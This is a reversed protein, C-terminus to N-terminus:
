RSASIIVPQLSDSNNWRPLVGRQQRETSNGRGPKSCCFGHRRWASSENAVSGLGVSIRTIVGSGFGGRKQDFNADCLRQSSSFCTRRGLQVENLTVSSISRQM